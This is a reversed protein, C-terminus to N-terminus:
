KKCTRPSIRLVARDALHAITARRAGVADVSRAEASKDGFRACFQRLLETGHKHMKRWAKV